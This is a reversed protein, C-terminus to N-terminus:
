RQLDNCDTVIGLLMVLIPLLAKLPQLLALKVDNVICVAMVLIPSLANLPQEPNCVMVNVAVLVKAVIPRSANKFQVANVDTEIGSLTVLRPVATNLFVPKCDNVIPLPM